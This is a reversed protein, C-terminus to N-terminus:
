RIALDISVFCMFKGGQGGMKSEMADRTMNGMCWFRAFMALLYPGNIYKWTPWFGHMTADDGAMAM